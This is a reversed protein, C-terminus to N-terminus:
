IKTRIFDSIAAAVKEKEEIFGMHGSNELAVFESNEPLPIKLAVNEFDIYSDHKGAMVLVPLNTGILINERSPREMMGKLSAIIGKDPTSVAIDTARKIDSRFSECNEPSFAKPINIKSILVKKGQDVLVIERYRNQRVPKTDPFPHSHLLCLGLLREPFYELMALATYGGMSHGAVFCKDIGCHDLIAIVSDALKNMGHVEGLIGSDGHGPLDPCIVRYNEELIGSFGNWIHLSELYGHLLVICTGSGEDSFQINTKSFPITRIM